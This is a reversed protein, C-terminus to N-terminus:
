RCILEPTSLEKEMGIDYISHTGHNQKRRNQRRLDDCVAGGYHLEDSYASIGVLLGDQITVTMTEKPFELTIRKTIKDDTVIREGSIYGQWSRLEELTLFSIPNYNLDPQEM